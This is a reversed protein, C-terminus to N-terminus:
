LVTGKETDINGMLPPCKSEESEGTYKPKRDSGDAPNRKSEKSRGAQAPM